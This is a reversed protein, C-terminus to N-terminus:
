YVGDQMNDRLLDQDITRDIEPQRRVWNLLTAAAGEDLCAYGNEGPERLLKAMCANFYNWRKRFFTFDAAVADYLKTLFGQTMFALGVEPVSGGLRHTEKLFKAANRRKAESVNNSIIVHANLYNNDVNLPPQGSIRLVYDFIKRKEDVGLDYGDEKESHKADYSWNVKVPQRMDNQLYHVFSCFGDPRDGGGWRSTSPFLYRLLNFVETEFQQGTYGRGAESLVVYSKRAARVVREQTSRRLNRLTALCQTAFASMSKDDRSAALAYAAGIHAVSAADLQAHEYSGGTHVVLMAQSFRDFLLLTKETVRKRYCFYVAEDPVDPSELGHFSQSEFRASNRKVKRSTAKTLAAEVFNHMATEDIVLKRKDTSQLANMCRLCEAASPDEVPRGKLDCFGCSRVTEIETRIIGKKKLDELCEMQFPRVDGRDDCALLFRYIETAGMMMPKPDIPQNLPIGFCNLFSERFESHTEEDWGVNVLNFRVAGVYDSNVRVVGDQGKFSLTLEEIDSLSSIGLAKAGALWGLDERVSEAMSSKEITLRAHNPAPSRKLKLSVIEVGHRPDYGGLLASQVKEADYGEFVTLWSEKADRSLQDGAWRTIDGALRKSSVKVTIRGASTDIGFLVNGYGNVIQHENDYDPKVSPKFKRQFLFVCLTDSLWRHGVFRVPGAENREAFAQTLRETSAALSEVDDRNLRGLTFESFTAKSRWISRYYVDQVSDPDRQYLLTLMSVVKLSSAKGGADSLDSCHATRERESFTLAYQERISEGRRRAFDCLYLLQSKHRGLLQGAFHNSDEKATYSVGLNDCLMRLDARGAKILLKRAAEAWVTGHKMAGETFVGCGIWFEADREPLTAAQTFAIGGAM